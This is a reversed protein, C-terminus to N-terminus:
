KGFASAHVLDSWSGYADGVPMGCPLISGKFGGGRGWYPPPGKVEKYTSVMRVLLVKIMPIRNTTLGPDLCEEKSGENCSSYEKGKLVNIENQHNWIFSKFLDENTRRENRFLRYNREQWILYVCTALSLRRIISNIFNGCYMDSFTNVIDEWGRCDNAIEM